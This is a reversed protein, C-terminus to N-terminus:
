ITIIDLIWVIPNHCHLGAVGSVNDQADINAGSKQM